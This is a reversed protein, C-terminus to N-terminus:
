FNVGLSLSHSVSKYDYLDRSVSGFISTARIDWDQIRFSYGFSLGISNFVSDFHVQFDTDIMKSIGSSEGFSQAAYGLGPTSRLELTFTDSLKGYYGVGLGLGLTAINFEDLSGSNSRPGVRRFNSFLVIPVFFRKEASRAEPSFFIESWAFLSFDVFSLDTQTSDSANQTGWMVSAFFNSRSFTLGYAPESFDLLTPPATEGNFEFDVLSFSATIATTKRPNENGFYFPQSLVACPIFAACLLLLVFATATTKRFAFRILNSRTM